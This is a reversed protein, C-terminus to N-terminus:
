FWVHGLALAFSSRSRSCFGDSSGAVGTRQYFFFFLIHRRDSSAVFVFRVGNLWWCPLVAAIYIARHESEIEVSRDHPVNRVRSRCCSRGAGTGTGTCHMCSYAPPAPLYSPRGVRRRRRLLHRFRTPLIIYTFFFGAWHLDVRQWQWGGSIILALCDCAVAPQSILSLFNTGTYHKAQSPKAPANNLTSM